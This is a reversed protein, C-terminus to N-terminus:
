CGVKVKPQGKVFEVDVCEAQKDLKELNLIIRGEPDRAIKNEVFVIGGRLRDQDAVRQGFFTQLEEATAQYSFFLQSLVKAIGM